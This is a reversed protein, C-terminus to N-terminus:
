WASWAMGVDLSGSASLFARETYKIFSAAVWPRLPGPTPWQAVVSVQGYGAPRTEPQGPLQSRLDGHTAIFAPDEVMAVLAPSPDQQRYQLALGGELVLGVLDDSWPAGWGVTGGIRGQTLNYKTTLAREGTLAAGIRTGGNLKLAALARLGLTTADADSAAGHV